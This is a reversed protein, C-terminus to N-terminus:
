SDLKHCAFYISLSSFFLLVISISVSVWPKWLAQINISHYMCYWNILYFVYHILYYHTDHLHVFCTLQTSRTYTHKYTTHLKQLPWSSRVSFLGKFLYGLYTSFLILRTILPSPFPLHLPRSADTHWSSESFSFSFGACKFNLSCSPHATSYTILSVAPVYTRCSGKLM